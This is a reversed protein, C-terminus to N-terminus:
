RKMHMRHNPIIKCPRSSVLLSTDSINKFSLKTRSPFRGRFPLGRAIKCHAFYILLPVHEMADIPFPKTLGITHLWSPFALFFLLFDFLCVINAAFLCCWGFGQGRLNKFWPRHTLTGESVPTYLPHHLLWKQGIAPHPLWGNKVSTEEAFTPPLAPTNRFSHKLHLGVSPLQM